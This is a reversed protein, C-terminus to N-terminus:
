SVDLLKRFTLLKKLKPKEGFRGASGDFGSKIKERPELRPINLGSTKVRAGKL